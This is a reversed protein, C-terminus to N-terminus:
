VRGRVQRLEELAAAVARQSDAPTSRTIPRGATICATFDDIEAQHAAPADLPLTTTQGNEILRLAGDAVTLDYTLTAKEMALTFAHRFDGGNPDWASHLHVAPGSAYHWLADVFIPLGERCHGSAHISAPEGFWWLAVDVDHIHMDLVVGGSQAANALWGGSSWVPLASVRQFSAHRARGHAGSDLLEKAKVYHPWYRLCHAIMLQRNAARAADAMATCDALTLAMPKECLVHKGARLAALALPAHQPTSTCIDVAEVNPDAILDLANTYAALGSVDVRQAAQEGLNFEQGSWEGALKKPDRASIAVLQAGACKRWCEFHTRGMAGLGILGVKLM